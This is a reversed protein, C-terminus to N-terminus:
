KGEKRPFASRAANVLAVIRPEKPALELARELEGHASKELGAALYARALTVHYEPKRADLEIAKRAFEVARRANASSKLTTDAVRDHAQASEPRGACVKSYSLAAEAWREQSEEYLAQKWYGDALAAAAQRLAADCTAQVAADEPALSAAIRYSNTAGAFDKQTLADRGAELYRNVQALNAEAVAAEQRMRMAEAAREVVGEDVPPAAHQAPMSSVSPARRGGSLKRALAERRQRLVDAPTAAGASPPASTVAPMAGSASRPASSPAFSARQGPDAQSRPASTPAFSARQGPDAQPRPASTPAFSARQGPDAQSRPASIPAVSRGAGIPLTALYADYDSRREPVTLVDHALTIRGFVAEIKQKYSGLQKRFYKDPHFEPALAYYASKVQKRDAHTDVNLLQYYTLEDLRYFLDLVRRKKELEIEVPEDLEAPDYHSAGPSTVQTAPHPTSRAGEAVLELAGLLALRDLAVAVQRPTMGTVLALDDENLMSDVRSLLYAEPASLSLSQNHTSLLRPVRSM